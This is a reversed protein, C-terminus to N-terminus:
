DVYGLSRLRDAAEEDLEIRHAPRALRRRQDQRARRESELQEALRRVIEPEAAARDDLEGPDRALDYLEYRPERQLQILKWSGDILVDLRGTGETKMSAHTTVFPRSALEADSGLLAQALSTGALPQGALPEAGGWGMLDVLTPYLDLLSVQSTVRRGGFSQDPAHMVLPIRLLEDYLSHGHSMSGHDLFEEGHDSTVVILTGGLLELEELRQLIRGLHADVEHIAADYRAHYVRLDDEGRIRQHGVARQARPPLPRPEGPRPPFLERHQPTAAYPLHTHMFHLYAFWRDARTVESEPILVVGELEFSTQPYLTIELNLDLPEDSKLDVMVYAVNQHQLSATQLRLLLTKREDDTGSTGLLRASALRDRRTNLALLHRGSAAAPATGLPVTVRAPTKQEAEGYRAILRDSLREVTIEPPPELGNASRRHWTRLLNAPSSELRVIADERVDVPADLWELVDKLLHDGHQGSWRLRDFGQDLGTAAAVHPNGCFGVTMFGHHRFIEPLTAWGADLADVTGRRLQGATGKEVGHVMPGVGSFLSAIAPKTWSSTSRAATFIAGDRAMADITPSTPRDYGYSGLHDPRLTDIVVFLVREPPIWPRPGGDATAAPAVAGAVLAAALTSAAGPFRIM